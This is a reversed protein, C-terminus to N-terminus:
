EHGIWRRLMSEAAKRTQFEEPGKGPGGMPQQVHARRGERRQQPQPSEGRDLDDEDAKQGGEGAVRRDIGEVVHDVVADVPFLRGGAAKRGRCAVDVASM